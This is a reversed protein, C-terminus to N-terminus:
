SSGRRRVGSTRQPVSRPWPTATRTLTNNVRMTSWWAWRDSEDTRDLALMSGDGWAADWQQANRKCQEVNTPVNALTTTEWNCSGHAHAHARAHARAHASARAHAHAHTHTM